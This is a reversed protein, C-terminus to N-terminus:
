TAGGEGGSHPISRRLRVEPEGYAPEVREGGDPQWGLHVYFARAAANAAFVWLTAEEVGDRRFRGDAAALLRAGVGLGQAEPHVYLSYVHGAAPLDPDRGIRIVGSVSRGPLEAVLVTADAPPDVLTRRWLARAGDEDYLGAVGPSLFGPYSEHWCALFVAAVAALDDPRAERITTRAEGSM